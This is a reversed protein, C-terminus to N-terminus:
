PTSTSSRTTTSAADDRLRKWTPYPDDDIDFDFPDYYLDVANAGTVAGDGQRYGARDVCRWARRRSRAGGTRAAEPMVVEGVRELYPWALSLRCAAACRRCTSCRALECVREVAEAVTTSATRNRADRAAGRCRRCARSAQRVDRQRPEVGAYTRADHLLYRGIEDWARDVDDAVFCRLPPTVTPFWFPDQDFTRAREVASEYAEQMGPEGGNALLGLGYRGARRAAALSAGGWMLRRVAPPTRRSPTVAIHRGDHVVHADGSLLKRLLDLKEDALRGRRRIISASISPIGGASLRNRLDGVVRGGSIIDLM